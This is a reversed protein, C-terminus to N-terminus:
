RRILNVISAASGAVGLLPLFFDRFFHSRKTVIIADGSRVPARAWETTPSTLDFTFQQGSRILRVRDLRGDSTPGGALAVAEAITTARPLSLLNPQRVEGGVTVRFLPEVIIQPDTVYKSLFQTLRQEVTHLPVGAVPVDQYLPQRLAGNVGVAFEGSMEPNRWVTVRVIDGPKLVVNTDLVSPAPTTQARLPAALSLAALLLVSALSLSRM